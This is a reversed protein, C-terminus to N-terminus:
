PGIQNSEDALWVFCQREEILFIKKTISKSSGYANPAVSSHDRQKTKKGLLRVVNCLNSLLGLVKGLRVCLPLSHHDEGLALIIGHCGDTPGTKIQLVM